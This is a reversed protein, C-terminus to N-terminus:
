CSNFGLRVTRRYLESYGLIDALEKQTLVQSTGDHEFLSRLYDKGEHEEGSCHIELHNCHPCELVVLRGWARHMPINKSCGVRVYFDGKQCSPCNWPIRHELIKAVSKADETM